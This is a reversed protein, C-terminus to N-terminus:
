ENRNEALEYSRDLFDLISIEGVTGDLLISTWEKPNMLYGPFVGKDDVFDAPVETNARVTLIWVNGDGEAGIKERSVNMLVGYWKDVDNTHLIICEPHEIWCHEPTTGYVNKVYNLIEKNEM